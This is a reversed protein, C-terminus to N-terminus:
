PSAIVNFHLMFTEMLYNETVSLLERQALTVEKKSLGPQVIFVMLNIPLTRSMEKIKSLDKRNGKEFRSVRRGKESKPERRLMHTFLETPKEMWHVSKQAQGCVAYLDEIRKGPKDEKSFKCHYFKVAISREEVRIAIVDAAEGSGDDNFVVDYDDNMLEQIVRYQISDPEKAIGQSEKRMNIGTWDWGLIKESPYPDYKTKLETLSNGDLSSSDVFWIVPPYDYFFDQLPM